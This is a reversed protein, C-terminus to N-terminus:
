RIGSLWLISGCAAVGFLFGLAAGIMAPADYAPFLVGGAIWGGFWLAVWVGIGAWVALDRLRERLERCGM